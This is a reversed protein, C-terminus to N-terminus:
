TSRGKYRKFASGPPPRHPTELTRPGSIGAPRANLNYPAEDVNASVNSVVNSGSAETRRQDAEHM